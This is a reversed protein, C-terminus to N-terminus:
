NTSFSAPLTFRFVTGEDDNSTFDVKGGLCKEGFLKMSYTGLGRGLEAKTSFNRQFVRLAIRAPISSKNWVAFTVSGHTDEVWVRVRGGEETAELANLVMNMLVRQILSDDTEIVRDPVNESFELCKDRAAIHGSFTDRLDQIVLTLPIPLLAPQYNSPDGGSLTAQMKLQKAFRAAIQQVGRTNRESGPLAKTEMVDGIITLAHVLNKMDHIFIREMAAHCQEATRDLLFILLLTHEEVTIPCARVRVFLDKEVGDRKATLVCDREVPSHDALATVIAIVAGCTPCYRGTGCGDPSDHAHICGVAEGPRLGLTQAPDSIGFTELFPGNVALIQRHENLVAILGGVNTLLQDVVPNRALLEVLDCLTEKSAREPSAFPEDDNTSSTTSEDTDTKGM